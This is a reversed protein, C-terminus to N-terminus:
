EKKSRMMINRTKTVMNTRLKYLIKSPLKKFMMRKRKMKQRLKISCPKGRKASINNRRLSIKQNIKRKAKKPLNILRKILRKPPNVMMSQKTLLLLVMRMLKKMLKAM